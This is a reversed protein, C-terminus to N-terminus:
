KGSEKLSALLRSNLDDFSGNSMTLVVDGTRLEKLLFELLGDTDDFAQAAKGLHRLDWLWGNLASDSRRLFEQWM